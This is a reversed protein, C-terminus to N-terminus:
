GARARISGPRGHRQRLEGGVGLRLGGRRGLAGPGGRDAPGAAQGVPRRGHAATGDKFCSSGSRARAWPWGTPSDASRSRGAWPSAPDRADIRSLDNSACTPWGSRARGSPSRRLRAAWPSRRAWWGARASLSAGRRGVLAPAVAAVAVAAVALVAGGILALRGRRPRSPPLPRTQAARTGAAGTVAAGPPPAGGGVVTAGEPACRTGSGRHAGGGAGGAGPQRGGGRPGLDGASPYRDEPKKAMARGIVEDLGPPVPRPMEALSPPPDNIHAFM